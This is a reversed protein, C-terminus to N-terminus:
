TVSEKNRVMCSWVTMMLPSNRIVTAASMWVSGSSRKRGVVVSVIVLDRAAPVVAPYMLAVVVIGFTSAKYVLRQVVTVHGVEAVVNM